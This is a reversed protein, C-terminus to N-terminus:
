RPARHNKGRSTSNPKHGRRGTKGDVKGPCLSSALGKTFPLLDASLRCLGRDLLICYRAYRRSWFRAKHPLHCSRPVRRPRPRPAAAHQGLPVGAGPQPVPQRARDPKHVTSFFVSTNSERETKNDELDSFCVFHVGIM